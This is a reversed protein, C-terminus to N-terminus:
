NETDLLPRPEREGEGVSDGDPPRGSRPSREGGMSDYVREVPIEPGDFGLPVDFVSAQTTRGLREVEAGLIALSREMRALRGDLNTLRHSPISPEGSTLGSKVGTSPANPKPPDSPAIFHLETVFLNRVVMGVQVLDPAVSAQIEAALREWDPQGPEPRWRALVAPVAGEVARRVIMRLDEDSRELLNEAAVALLAPDTPIKAQVRIRTEWGSARGGDIAYMSRVTLDVDVLDLSLHGVGRNWPALFVGGGVLIRPHRVEPDSPVTRRGPAVRPGSARHGFLVLARNPPVPLYFRSYFLWSLLGAGSASVAIESAPIILDQLGM